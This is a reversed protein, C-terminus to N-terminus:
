ILMNMVDFHIIEKHYSHISEKAIKFNISNVLRCKPQINILQKMKQNLFKSLKVKIRNM